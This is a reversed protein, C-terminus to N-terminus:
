EGEEFEDEEGDQKFMLHPSQGIFLDFFGQVADKEDSLRLWATPELQPEEELVLEIAFNAYEELAKYFQRPEIDFRELTELFHPLHYRPM